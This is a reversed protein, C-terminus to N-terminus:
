DVGPSSHEHNGGGVRSDTEPQFYPVDLAPKALNSWLPYDIGALRNMVIAQVVLVAVALEILVLHLPHTIVGLSIIMTTAGAPPHASRLLLMLAGTAALSLAVAFIRPGTVGEIMAPGAHQLGFLCLSGYGCAIAIAHGFISNRPSATPSLPTVFFLIATPGLSPFVFPTRTLMAVLALLAIIVFGNIFMFVAWVRRAPFQELLHPVQLRRALGRARGALSNTEAAQM